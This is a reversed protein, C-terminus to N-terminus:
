GRGCCGTRKPQAGEARPQAGANALSSLVENAFMENNENAKICALCNGLWPTGDFLGLACKGRGTKDMSIQYSCNVIHHM